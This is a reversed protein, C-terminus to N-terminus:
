SFPGAHCLSGFVFPPRPGCRAVADLSRADEGVGEEQRPAQGSTLRRSGWTCMYGHWSTVAGEQQELCAAHQQLQITSCSCSGSPYGLRGFRAGPTTRQDALVSSSESWRCADGFQQQQAAPTRGAERFPCNQLRGLVFVEPLLSYFLPYVVRLHM